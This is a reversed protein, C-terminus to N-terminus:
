ARLEFEMVPRLLEFVHNIQRFFAFAPCKFNLALHRLFIGCLTFLHLYLSPSTSRIHAQVCLICTGFWYERGLMVTLRVGVLGMAEGNEHAKNTGEM